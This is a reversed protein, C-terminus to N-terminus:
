SGTLSQKEKSSERLVGRKSFFFLSSFVFPLLYNSLLWLLLVLLLSFAVDCASGANWCAGVLICMSLPNSFAQRRKVVRPHDRLERGKSSPSFECEGNPLAPESGLLVM